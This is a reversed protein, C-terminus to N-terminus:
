RVKSVTAQEQTADGGLSRLKESLQMVMHEVVQREHDSLDTAQLLAKCARIYEQVSPSYDSM